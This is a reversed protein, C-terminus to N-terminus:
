GRAVIAPRLGVLPLAMRLVNHTPYNSRDRHKTKQCGWSQGSWSGVWIRVIAIVIAVVPCPLGVSTRLAVCAGGRTREASERMTIIGM